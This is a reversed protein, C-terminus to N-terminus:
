ERIEGEELEDEVIEGKEIEDGVIEGQEREDEGTSDNTDTVSRARSTSPRQFSKDCNERNADGPIASSSGRLMLLAEAAEYDAGTRPLEPKQSPHLLSKTSAIDNDSGSTTNKSMNALELESVELLAHWMKSKSIGGQIPQPSKKMDHAVSGDHTSNTNNLSM